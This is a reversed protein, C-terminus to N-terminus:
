EYRTKKGLSHIYNETAEILESDTCGLGLIYDHGPNCHSECFEVIESWNGTQYYALQDGGDYEIQISYWSPSEIIRYIVDQKDNKLKTFVNELWEITNCKIAAM